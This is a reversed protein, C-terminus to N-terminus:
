MWFPYFNKRLKENSSFAGLEAVTGFSEVIILISDSFSALWEEMELANHEKSIKSIIEWAKEARFHLWKMKKNFYSEIYIRNKNYRPDGGCIFAVKPLYEDLHELTMEKVAQTFNSKVKLYIPNKDWLM